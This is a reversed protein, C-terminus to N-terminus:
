NKSEDKDGTNKIFFQSKSVYDEVNTASLENDQIEINFTHPTYSSCGSEKSHCLCTGYIIGILDCVLYNHPSYLESYFHIMNGNFALKRISNTRPEFVLYKCAIFSVNM